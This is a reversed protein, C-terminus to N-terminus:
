AADTHTSVQRGTLTRADADAAVAVQAAQYLRVGRRREVCALQQQVAADAGPCHACYASAHAVAQLCRRRDRLLTGDLTTHRHPWQERMFAVTLVNHRDLRRSLDDQRRLGVACIIRIRKFEVTDHADVARTCRLSAYKCEDSRHQLPVALAEVGCDQRVALRSGALCVRHSSRDACVIKHSRLRRADHRTCDHHQEAVHLLRLLHVVERELHLVDLDVVVRQHIQQCGVAAGLRRYVGFLQGDPLPWAALDVHRACGLQKCARTLLDRRQQLAAAHRARRRGVFHVALARTRVSDHRQRQLLVHPTVRRRGHGLVEVKQAGLQVEDVKGTRLAYVVSAGGPLAERLADVDVLTQQLKAVNDVRQGLALRARVHRVAVGLERAQQGVRESPVRLRQEDRARRRRVNVVLLSEVREPVRRARHLDLVVQAEVVLHRRALLQLVQPAHHLLQLVFVRPQLVLHLRGAHWDATRSTCPNLSSATSVTARM